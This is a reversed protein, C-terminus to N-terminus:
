SQNPRNGKERILWLFLAYQAGILIANFLIVQGLLLWDGSLTHSQAQQFFVFSMDFNVPSDAMWTSGLNWESIYSNKSIEFSNSTFNQQLPNLRSLFLPIIPIGGTLWYQMFLMPLLVIGYAAKAFTSNWFRAAVTFLVLVLLGVIGFSIKSNQMIRWFWPQSELFITYLFPALGCTCIWSVYFIGSRSLFLGAIGWLAIATQWIVLNLVGQIVIRGPFPYEEKVWEITVGAVFSYVLTGIIGVVLLPLGQRFAQSFACAVLDGLKPIPDGRLVRETKLFTLWGVIGTVVLPILFIGLAGISSFLYLADHIQGSTFQRSNPFLLPGMFFVWSLGYM